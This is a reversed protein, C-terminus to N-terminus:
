MIQVFVKAKRAAKFKRRTIKFNKKFNLRCLQQIDKSCIINKFKEPSSCQSRLNAIMTPISSKSNEYDSICNCGQFKAKDLNQLSTLLNEGVLKLSNYDFNIYRLQQNFEFLDSPLLELQNHNLELEKLKSFPNLDAMEISKLNSNYIRIRELNPFFKTIEKPIYNITTSEFNLSKVDPFVGSSNGNVSTITQNPTTVQLSNVQCYRGSGVYTWSASSFSCPLNIGLTAM